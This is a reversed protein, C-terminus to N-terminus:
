LSALFLPFRLSVGPPEKRTFIHRIQDVQKALFEREATVFSSPLQTFYELLIELAEVRHEKEKHFTSALHKVVSRKELSRYFKIDCKYSM